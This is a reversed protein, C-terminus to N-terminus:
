KWRSYLDLRRHSRVPLRARVDAIRTASLDAFIMDSEVGAEALVDGWPDVVLSHGYAVYNATEDRGPCAAAVYMQYDVARGRMLLHWHAEGTPRSFAAPIAVVDVCQREFYDFIAPFRVDYCIAVGLRCFPLDVVLPETGASFTSSEQVRVTDLDIDFLHIKRHRGLLEGRPGITYSTNYLHGPASEEVLDKGSASERECLSGAVITLSLEAALDRLRTLAPGESDEAAANMLELQYPTQFMEPLVCLQAKAERSRRLFEEAHTLNTEADKDVIWQGVAIRFDKM